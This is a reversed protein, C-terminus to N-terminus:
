LLNLYTLGFFGLNNEEGFISFTKGSNTNGFGFLFLDEKNDLTHQIM